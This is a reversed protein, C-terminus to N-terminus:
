NHATKFPQLGTDELGRPLMNILDLAGYLTSSIGWSLPITISKLPLNFSHLSSDEIKREQSTLLLHKHHHQTNNNDYNILSLYPMKLMQFPSM